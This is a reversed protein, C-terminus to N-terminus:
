YRSNPGQDSSSTPQLQVGLRSLTEPDLEGTPQLNNKVQFDRIAAATASSWRGNAPGASFGQQELKQQIEMVQSSTIQVTTQGSQLQMPVTESQSKMAPDSQDQSQQGQARATLAPGAVLMGGLLVALFKRSM